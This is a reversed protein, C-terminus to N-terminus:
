NKRGGLPASTEGSVATVKFFKMANGAATTFSATESTGLLTFTGYPDDSSYIRYFSAGDQAAWTLTVNDATRTIQFETVDVLIGLKNSIVADSALSGTYNAKM